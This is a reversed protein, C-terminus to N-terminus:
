EDRGWEIKRHLKAIAYAEALKMNMKVQETYSKNVDYGAYMVYSLLFLLEDDLAERPINITLASLGALLQVWIKSEKEYELVHSKELWKQLTWSRVPEEEGVCGSQQLFYHSLGDSSNWVRGLPYLSCVFPKFEQVTCCGNRMFSCSGDQREKLVAVPLHSNPGIYGQTNSVLVEEPTVGIGKALRFIDLGTVIVPVERKRCCAGCKKCDFAFTDQMSMEKKLLEEYYKEDSM